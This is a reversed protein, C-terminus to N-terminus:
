IDDINLVDGDKGDKGDAEDESADSEVFEFEDNANGANADQEENIKIHEPLHGEKKLRHADDSTYKAIIDYADEQFDRMAVLIIDARNVWVKRKMKGRLCARVNDSPKALNAAAIQFDKELSEVSVGQRVAEELFEPSGIEPLTKELLQVEFAGQGTAKLVQAYV